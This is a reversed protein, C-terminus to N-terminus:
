PIPKFIALELLFDPLISQFISDFQFSLFGSWIRISHAPVSDFWFDFCNPFWNPDSRFLLCVIFWIPDSQFSFSPYSRNWLPLLILVSPPITDFKILSLTVDSIPDSTSYLRLLDTLFDLLIIHPWILIRISNTQIMDSRFKPFFLDKIM